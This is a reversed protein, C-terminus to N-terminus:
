HRSASAGCMFGIEGHVEHGTDPERIMSKSDTQAAQKTNACGCLLGFSVPVMTLLRILM